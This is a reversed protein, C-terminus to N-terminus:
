ADTFILDVPLDNALDPADGVPPLGPELVRVMRAPVGVMTAHPPVHDLVVSGAGIKAGDGIRINGLVKVGACLLVGNGVKPHRDGRDKGTGGLTVEQLMSVDDGVTATEGIVVSTAHDIFVGAGIRAAPHIDVAFVESVRNQLFSALGQRRAGWLAHAVRYAQLAHFGKHFLFATLLDNTGPDREVIAALDRRLASRMAPSIVYATELTPQLDECSIEPTCLKRALLHALAQALGTSRLVTQNLWAGLTAESSRLVLAQAHVEQWQPDAQMPKM